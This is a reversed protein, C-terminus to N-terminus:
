SDESYYQRIFGSRYSVTNMMFDTAKKMAALVDNGKPAAYSLTSTHVAVCILVVIIWSRRM